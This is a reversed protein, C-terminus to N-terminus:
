SKSLNRNTNNFPLPHYKMAQEYFVGLIGSRLAPYNESLDQLNGGNQLNKQLMTAAQINQTKESFIDQSFFRGYWPGKPKQLDQIYSNILFHNLEQAIDLNAKDTTAIGEYVFDFGLINLLATRKSDDHLAALVKWPTVERFLMEMEHPDLTKMFESYFDVPLLNLIAIFNQAPTATAYYIASTFTRMEIIGMFVDLVSKQNLASLTQIIKPVHKNFISNDTMIFIKLCAAFQNLTSRRKLLDNTLTGVLHDGAQELITKLNNYSLSQFFKEYECKPLSRIFSMTFGLEVMSWENYGANYRMNKSILRDMLQNGLGNLFQRKQQYITKRKEDSLYDSVQFIWEEARTIQDPVIIMFPPDILDKDEEKNQLLARKKLLYKLQDHLSRLYLGTKLKNTSDDNDSISKVINFVAKLIQTFADTWEEPKKLIAHLIVRNMEYRSLGCSTPDNQSTYKQLFCKSAEDDVIFLQQFTEDILLEFFQKRDEELRDNGYWIVLFNEIRSRMMDRVSDSNDQNASSVQKLTDQERHAPNQPLKEEEKVQTTTRM